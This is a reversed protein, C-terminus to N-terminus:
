IRKIGDFVIEEQGRMLSVQFGNGNSVQYDFYDGGHYTSLLAMITGGHVILAASKTGEPLESMMKRMGRECRAVFAERSEGEPFPLTGGSDIWEQYDKMGNLEQYNKGEFLGFDMENWEPIERTEIEPYIMSATNKCRMMSSTFVCDVDPYRHTDVYEKIEKRGEASLGEDMKGLYRHEKNAKTKGHRILTLIIQDQNGNWM